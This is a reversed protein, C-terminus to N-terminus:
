ENCGDGDCIPAGPYFRENRTQTQAQINFIWSGFLGYQFTKSTATNATSFRDGVNVAFTSAPASSANTWDLFLTSAANSGTGPAVAGTQAGKQTAYSAGVRWFGVMGFIIGLMLIAVLFPTYTIMAFDDGGSSGSEVQRLLSRVCNLTNHSSKSNTRHIMPTVLNM